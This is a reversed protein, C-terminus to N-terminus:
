IIQKQLNTCAAALLHLRACTARLPNFDNFRNFPNFRSVLSLHKESKKPRIQDSDSPIPRFREGIWTECKKAGGPRLDSTLLRLDSLSCLVACDPTRLVPRPRGTRRRFHRIILSRNRVGRPTEDPKPPESLVRLRNIRSLRPPVCLFALSLERHGSCPRVTMSCFEKM